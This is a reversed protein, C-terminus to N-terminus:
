SYELKLELENATGRLLNPLEEHFWERDLRYRPGSLSFAGIPEGDVVVPVGLAWLGTISEEKNTAYGRDRIRELEEFLEDEDTITDDTEAPLGWRDIVERVREDSMQSLIAKGSAGSHLYRLKGPRRDARVSREGEAIHLFVGRGHEEVIFQAREGTEEALQEVLPPALQSVETRNRAHEGIALFRLGVHYEEDEKVAYGLSCLTSLQRHVTSKALGLEEALETVRAGDRDILAEVIHFMTEISKVSREREGM